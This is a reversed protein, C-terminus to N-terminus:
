DDRVHPADASRSGPGMAVTGRGVLGPYLDLWHPNDTEILSIKWDRRWRKLQKERAIALNVDCFHEFWVLQKVGYRKTFGPVLGERHEFARRALDNTVGAYLTGYSKSALMYVFFNYDHM